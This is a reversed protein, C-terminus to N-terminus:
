PITLRFLGAKESFLVYIQFQEKAFYTRPRGKVNGSKRSQLGPTTDGESVAGGGLIVRM